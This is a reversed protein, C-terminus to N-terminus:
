KQGFVRQANRYAIMEAAESDLSGLAMRLAEIMKRYRRATFWKEGFRGDSGVMFRDPFAEFLAAWDEYFEDNENSIRGLHDWAIDRRPNVQKMNMMLGPYRQLLARANATNTMATHSLILKLKPQRQFWLAIGGFVEEEYGEGQPTRPELHVDLWVDLEAALDVLQLMPEFDLPVHLIRMRQKKDFHYPGIEGIALCGGHTLDDRLREIRRELEERDLGSDYAQQMWVTFYTSGCLRGAKVERQAVWERRKKVNQGAHKMRGENPTPLVIMRTVGAGNAAEAVESLDIHKLGRLLHVHTDIIPGTYRKGHVRASRNLDAQYPTIEFGPSPLEDQALVLPSFLM